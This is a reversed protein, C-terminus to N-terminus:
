DLRGTWRRVGTRAVVAAAALLGGFVGLLFTVGDM